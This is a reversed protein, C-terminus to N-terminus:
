GKVGWEREREHGVREGELVSGKREWGRVGLERGDIKEGRM